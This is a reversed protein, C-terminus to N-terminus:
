LDFFVLEGSKRRGVQYGDSYGFHDPVEDSYEDIPELLEMELVIDNIMRCPAMPNSKKAEMGKLQRKYRQADGHNDEEGRHTLPVKYVLEKERDIYTIRSSGAYWESYKRLFPLHLAERYQLRGYPPALAQERCPQGSHTERDEPCTDIVLARYQDALSM